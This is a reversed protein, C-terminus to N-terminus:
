KIEYADWGSVVNEMKEGGYSKCIQAQQVNDNPTACYFKGQLAPVEEQHLYRYGISIGETGRPSLAVATSYITCIFNSPCQFSVALEDVSNAYTGNALYYTEQANGITRVAVIGQVLRSKLVAKKYQPVAVAALIGIILVVVLLEILTFGGAGNTMGSIQLGPYLPANFYGVVIDRMSVSRSSSHHTARSSLNNNINKM